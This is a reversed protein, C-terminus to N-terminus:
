LCIRWQNYLGVTFTDRVRASIMERTVVRWLRTKLRNVASVRNSVGNGTPARQQLTINMQSSKSARISNVHCPSYHYRDRWEARSTRRVYTSWRDKKLSPECTLENLDVSISPTWNYPPVRDFTYVCRSFQRDNTRKTPRRPGVM